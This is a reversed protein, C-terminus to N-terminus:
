AILSVRERAMEYFQPEAEIGVVNFGKSSGAIATTGSGLFPDLITGSKIESIEILREILALPKEAPHKTIRKTPNGNVRIIDRVSRNLILADPKSFYLIFEYSFRYTKNKGGISPFDKDWIILNRIDIGLSDLAAQAALYSVRNMFVFAKGQNNLVRYIESFLREYFFRGNLKDQHNSITGNKSVASVPAMFYPPDTIVLDVSETQIDKILEFADGQLLTINDTLKEM